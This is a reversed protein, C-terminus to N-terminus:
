TAVTWLQTILLLPSERPSFVVATWHQPAQDPPLLHAASVRHQGNIIFFRGSIVQIAGSTEKEPCPTDADPVVVIPFSTPFCGDELFKRNLENVREPVLVRQLPHPSLSDLPILFTGIRHLDLLAHVRYGDMATHSSRHQLEAESNLTALASSQDPFTQEPLGM